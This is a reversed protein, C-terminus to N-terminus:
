RILCGRSTSTRKATERRDTTANTVGNRHNARARASETSSQDRSHAARMKAASARHGADKAFALPAQSSRALEPACAHTYGSPVHEHARLVGHLPTGLGGPSGLQRQRAARVSPQGSSAGACPPTHAAGPFIQEYPSQPESAYVHSGCFRVHNMEPPVAGGGLAGPPPTRGGAGGGSGGGGGSLAAAGADRAVHFVHGARVIKRQVGRLWPAAGGRPSATGCTQPQMGRQGADRGTSMANSASPWQGSPERLPRNM